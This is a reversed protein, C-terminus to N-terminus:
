NSTSLAQPLSGDTSLTGIRSATLKKELKLHLPIIFRILFMMPEKARTAHADLWASGTIVKIVTFVASGAAYEAQAFFFAAAMDFAFPAIAM